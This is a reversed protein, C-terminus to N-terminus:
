GSDQSPSFGVRFIPCPRSKVLHRPCGPNYLCTHSSHPELIPTEECWDTLALSLFIFLIARVCCLFLGDEVVM